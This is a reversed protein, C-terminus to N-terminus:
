YLRKVGASDGAELTRKNTEGESAFRYMTEELCSDDPHGMGVTHGLEHTAINEFDMKGAEGTSSWDFDTDDYVQDWEVLERAFPPGNFIGWVITVGIAGSIIGLVGKLFRRRSIQNEKSRNYM